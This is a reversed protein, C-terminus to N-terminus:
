VRVWTFEEPMGEGTTANEHVRSVWAGEAGARVVGAFLGWRDLWDVRVKPPDHSVPVVTLRLPPYLEEVTQEPFAKWNTIGL